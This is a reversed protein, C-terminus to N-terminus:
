NTTLTSRINKKYLLLLQKPVQYKITLAHVAYKKFIM